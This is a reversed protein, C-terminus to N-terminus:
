ASALTSAGSAHRRPQAPRCPAHAPPRSPRTPASTHTHPAPVHLDLAVGTRQIQSSRRRNHASSTRRPRPVASTRSRPAPSQLDASLHTRSAALPPQPHLIQRPLRTQRIQRGLATRPASLNSARSAPAPHHARRILRRRLLPNRICLIQRRRNRRARPAARRLAQELAAAPFRPPERGRATSRTGQQCPAKRPM